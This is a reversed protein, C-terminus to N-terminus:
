LENKYIYKKYYHRILTYYYFDNKIERRIVNLLQMDNKDMCIKEIGNLLIEHYPRHTWFAKSKGNELIEPNYKSLCAILDSSPDDIDVIKLKNNDINNNTLLSYYFENHLTSHGACVSEGSLLRYKLLNYAAFSLASESLSKIKDINNIHDYEINYENSIVQLLIKSSILEGTIDQYIGSLFKYIPNRTVFILDKKSKGNLISELEELSEPVKMDSEPKIKSLLYLKYYDVQTTNLQSLEFGKFLTTIASSGGKETFFIGYKETLEFQPIVDKYFSTDKISFDHSYSFNLTGKFFKTILSSNKTKELVDRRDNYNTHVFDFDDKM